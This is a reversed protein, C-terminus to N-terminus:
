TLMRDANDFYTKGETPAFMTALLGYTGRSRVAMFIGHHYGHPRTLDNDVYVM